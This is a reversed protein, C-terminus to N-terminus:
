SVMNKLAHRILEESTQHETTMKRIAKEAMVPKYGLAILAAIAEEQPDQRQASIGGEEQSATMDATPTEPIDVDWNKLRDKMEVLLREATKKGIGPIKTLRTLDDNNIAQIFQNTNLGSLIALAVKPGIGNVKILERFLQRSPEDHFGYLLQADERVVFHTILTVQEGLEPLQYFCSMPLQLEYGVGAVDVLIYPPQKVELIGKLRGIVKEKVGSFIMFLKFQCQILIWYQGYFIM